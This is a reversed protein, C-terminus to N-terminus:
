GILSGLAHGAPLGIVTGASVGVTIFSIARTGALTGVLKPGVPTVVTWFGGIAVGLLVRGPAPDGLDLAALRGGDLGYGRRGPV